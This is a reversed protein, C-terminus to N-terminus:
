RTKCDALCSKMDDKCDAGGGLVGNMQGRGVSEQAAGTESCRDYDNNCSRVCSERNNEIHMVEGSKSTYTEGQQRAPSCAAAALLLCLSLAKMIRNQLMM